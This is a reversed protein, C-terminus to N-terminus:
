FQEKLKDSMFNFLNSLPKEVMMKLFTNIKGEFFLHGSCSNDDISNIHITLTFPFPSKEGSVMKISSNEKIEDQILSITAANQVKFSCSTTDATWETIKDQPLLHYINQCDSLFTFVTKSSANISAETSKIEM